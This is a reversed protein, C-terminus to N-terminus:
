SSLLHLVAPLLKVDVYGRIYIYYITTCVVFTVYCPKLFVYLNYFEGKVIDVGVVVETDETAGEMVEGVVGEMEVVVIVAEEVVEGDVKTGGAVVVVGTAAEGEVVAMEEVESDEVGVEEEGLDGEEVVGGGEEIDEGM